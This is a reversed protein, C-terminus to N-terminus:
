NAVRRVGSGVANEAARMLALALKLPASAPMPDLVLHAIDCGAVAVQATEDPLRPV